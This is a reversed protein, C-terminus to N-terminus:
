SLGKFEEDPIVDKEIKLDIGRPNRGNRPVNEDNQKKFIGSRLTDTAGRLLLGKMRLQEKM